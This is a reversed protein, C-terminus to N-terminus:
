HPPAWDPRKNNGDRYGCMCVLIILRRVAPLLPVDYNDRVPFIVRECEVALDVFVIISTCPTDVGARGM